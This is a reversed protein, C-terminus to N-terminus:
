VMRVRKLNEATLLVEPHDAGFLKLKIALSRELMAQGQAAFAMGLNNLTAAVEFHNPGFRHEYHALAHQYIPISEAYRKQGDLLGGWAVADAITADHEEGLALKRIEYAKRALPEGKEYDGRSHELGGLNHYLTATELAEKGYLTELLQLARLYYREGEEFRGWYKCLVGYNNLHGAVEPTEPGFSREAERIAELLPVAAEEYKGLERLATGWLSLARPALAGRTELDLADRVHEVIEHAQRAAREAQEYQCLALHSEASDDLINALDPSHPGEAAAFYTLAHAIQELAEAHKGAAQLEQAWAHSELADQEKILKM